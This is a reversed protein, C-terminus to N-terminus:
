DFMKDSLSVPTRNFGIVLCSKGDETIASGYKIDLPGNEASWGMLEGFETPPLGVRDYFSNVSVWMESMMEYSIDNCASRLTQLDSRFYRGTLEDRCLDDGIGVIVETSTPKTQNVVKQANHDEVEKAKKEGIVEKVSDRYQLAANQALAYASAVAATRKESVQHTGLVCGATAIVALGTPIYTPAVKVILDKQSIDPDEQKLEEIRDSCKLTDHVAFAVSAGIGVLSMGTMIKHSNRMIWRKFAVPIVKRM